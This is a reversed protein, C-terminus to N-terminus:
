LRPRPQCEISRDVSTRLDIGVACVPADVTVRGNAQIKYSFVFKPDSLANLRVVDLRASELESRAASLDSELEKVYAANTVEVPQRTTPHTTFWGERTTM